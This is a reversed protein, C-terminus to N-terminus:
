QGNGEQKIAYLTDMCHQHPVGGSNCDFIVEGCSAILWDAYHTFLEGSVWKYRGAKQNSPSHVFPKRVFVNLAHLGGTTTHMQYNTLIEERHEQPIYHLAGTCFIIDFDSDLRFDLMNAQLFNIQAGVQEALRRAKDLGTSEADFATVNYGNRAFFVANKGEGCAVDLLRLPRQPPCLKMVEYCMDSPRLGWYYGDAKYREEYDMIKHKEAPYGLLADINCRFVNALLPLASIDPTSNGNEWKSVAQFSINMRKALEEQTLGQEKRLRHINKGITNEM